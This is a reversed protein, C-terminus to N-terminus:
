NTQEKQKKLQAGYSLERKFFDAIRSADRKTLKISLVDVLNDDCLTLEVLNGEHIQIDSIEM